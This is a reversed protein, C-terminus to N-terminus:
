YMCFLIQQVINMLMTPTTDVIHLRQEAFLTADVWSESLKGSFFDVHLFISSLTGQHRPVRSDPIFCFM